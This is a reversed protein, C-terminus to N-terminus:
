LEPVDPGGRPCRESGGGIGDTDCGVNLEGRSIRALGYQGAHGVPGV